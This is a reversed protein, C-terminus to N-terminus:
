VGWEKRAESVPKPPVKGWAYHAKPKRGVWRDDVPESARQYRTDSSIRYRNTTNNFSAHMMFMGFIIVDGANFTTTAWTGGFNEIMEVPDETFWGTAVNDRDVDMQGYSAKIKEYHQSGLLLALTGLEPPIDGFPTWMTYLEKTGRGMYVIDYHAGTNGGNAIARPWKYDYTMAKEGFLEDFFRMTRESEVVELFTPFDARLEEAGGGWMGSKNDPHVVAEEVPYDPHLRGMSHLKALFEGRAKLVQARDHFDRLLLYGDERLRARLAEVDGLVDNSDRLEVVETGYDLEAKGMQLKM